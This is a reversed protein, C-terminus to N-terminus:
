GVALWAQLSDQSPWFKALVGFSPSIKVMASQYTDTSIPATEGPFSEEIASNLGNAVKVYNGPFHDFIVKKLAAMLSDLSHFTEYVYDVKKLQSKL